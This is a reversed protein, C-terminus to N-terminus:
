LSFGHPFTSISYIHVSISFIKTRESMWICSLSGGVTLALNILLTLVAPVLCHYFCASPGAILTTTLHFTFTKKRINLNCQMNQLGM